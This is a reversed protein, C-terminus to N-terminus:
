APVTRAVPGTTRFHHHLLQLRELPGKPWQGQMKLAQTWQAKQYPDTQSPLQDHAVPESYWYTVAFFPDPVCRGVTNYASSWAPNFEAADDDSRWSLSRTSSVASTNWAYTVPQSHPVAYISNPAMRISKGISRESGPYVFRPTQPLTRDSSSDHARLSTEAVSISISGHAVQASISSRQCPTM